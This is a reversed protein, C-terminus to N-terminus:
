DAPGGHPAAGRAPDEGNPSSTVPFAALFHFAMPVKYGALAARCHGTLAAPDLTAGPAPIIFAFPRTNGEHNAAVVQCANVGPYATIFDEIEAPNVLFGGLRLADGMRAHFVFSGDACTHVLDGTRVFGDTTLTQATAIDDGFYGAMLSPGCAELEGPQDHLCLLGSDPDRVRISAQPSVPWGGAQGRVRAPDTTKQHAFLAQIESMGYLGTLRLGRREARAVIDEAEAGFAAFGALRLSPFPEADASSDLMDRFMGDTGNMHTIGFERVLSAARGADFSDMLITRCGAALAAMAQCFGFVGCLPLAQLSVANGATLGFDGAVDIAHRVIGSHNHLVFKPASTTGSTTFIACGAEPAAHDEALPSGAALEFYAVLRSAALAPPLGTATAFDDNGADCVIVAEVAGLASHDVAALIGTFNINRFGPCFALARAGTRGIVDAVEHSRFWTNVMVAVAGLRACGLFLGLWAPINPLWLAVRDGPGIGLAALGAATRRGMADLQRWSLTVPGGRGGRG